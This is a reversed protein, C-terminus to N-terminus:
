LLPRIPAVARQVPLGLRNHWRVRQADARVQRLLLSPPSDPSHFRAEDGRLRARACWAYTQFSMYHLPYRLIPKPLQDTLQVFGTVVQAGRACAFLVRGRM